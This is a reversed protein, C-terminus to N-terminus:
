DREGLTRKFLSIETPATSSTYWINVATIADVAAFRLGKAGDWVVQGTSPTISSGGVLLQLVGTFTGATSVINLLVAPFAALTAADGLVAAAAETAPLNTVVLALVDGIGMERFLDPLRNPQAQNFDERINPTTASM